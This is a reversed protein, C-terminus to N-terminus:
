RLNEIMKMKKTKTINRNVGRYGILENENNYIPVGNTLFCIDEGNKTKYWAELDIVPKQSSLTKNFFITLRSVEDDRMIEFISKELIEEVNYGMNGMIKGSVFTFKGKLDIEWIWDAMSMSIDRFRKESERRKEEEEKKKSIDIVTTIVADKEEYKIPNISMLVWLPNGQTDRLKAEHHKIKGERRLTKLIDEREQSNYYVEKVNLDSIDDIKMIKGMTDNIELINGELDSIGVGLLANEFFSRYKKESEILKVKNIEQETIDEHILILYIVDNSINKIPFIKSRLTRKRGEFGSKGPDFEEDPLSVSEGKLAREVYPILGKERLQENEFLNFKGIMDNSKVGFLKRWGKNVHLNIGEANYLEISLPFEEIITKFKNKSIRLEKEIKKQKSIDIASILLYKKDAIELSEAFLLVILEKGAKTTIKMEYNKLFGDKKITEVMKIRDDLSLIGLETSTRGIAEERSFGLIESFAENIDVYKGDQINSLGFIAPASKFMKSFKENSIRLLDNIKILESINQVSVIVKEWSDEYGPTISLNQIVRIEEGTFIRQSIEYRISLNGEILLVINAEFVRIAGPVFLDKLNDLLKEKSGVKYMKLTEENVDIVKILNVCNILDKPNNRFFERFDHIGRSKLKEIYKKVESFDEEWLSIPSNDFLNRYRSEDEKIKLQNLKKQTIDRSIVGLGNGVKFANVNLYVKGYKQHVKVDEISFPKGTKIVEMYSNFRGTKKIDPNLVEINKGIVEEPKLKLVNLSIDNIELINLDSDLLVIHESTSNMFKRLREESVNLASEMRKRDTIDMLCGILENPNGEEDFIIESNTWIHRIEGDPLVSRYETSKTKLTKMVEKFENQIRKKDGLYINKNIINVLGEEQINNPDLHSIRYIGESYQMKTTNLDLRYSGMNAIKESQRLLAENKKLNQEAAKRLTIDHGECILLDIYGDKDFLPKISFDLYMKDGTPSPIIIEFRDIKGNTAEIIAIHIREQLSISHAFWPTEWFLKGVVESELCKIIDLASNNIEILTGDITLLGSFQLLQSFIGHFRKIRENTNVMKQKLNNIDTIMTLAFLKNGDEDKILITSISCMFPIGEKNIVVTYERIHPIKEQWLDEIKLKLDNDSGYALDLIDMLYIEEHSYGIMEIFEKNVKLIRGQFDSEIIGISSKKLDNELNIRTSKSRNEIRRLIEESNKRLQKEKELEKKLSELEKNIYKEEM